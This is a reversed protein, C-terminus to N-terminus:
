AQLRPRRRRTEGGSRGHDHMYANLARLFARTGGHDRFWQATRAPIRFAEGEVAAILGPHDVGLDPAEDTILARRRAAKAWRARDRATAPPPAPMRSKLRTLPSVPATTVAPM